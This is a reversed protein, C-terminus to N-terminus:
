VDDDLVLQGKEVRVNFIGPSDIRERLEDSLAHVMCDSYGSDICLIRRIFSHPKLRLVLYGNVNMFSPSLDAVFRSGESLYEQRIVLSNTLVWTDLFSLHVVGVIVFALTFNAVYGLNFSGFSAWLHSLMLIWIVVCLKLIKKKM